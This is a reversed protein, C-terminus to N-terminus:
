RTAAIARATEISRTSWGSRENWGWALAHASGWGRLRERDLGLEQLVDLWLRIAAMGGRWAANRLLGVGNLEPEGVLPKPDIVLWPERTARLVNDGHLDQNVLSRASQDANRFVDVAYALLSPEFPEGDETYRASVEAAWREAEDVLLRFPHTPGPLLALLGLLDAVVSAEDAGSDRLTTGPRCREILLARREDDRAVLRVAGHGAWAALADAEHEAEYHTPANLKLVVDGALVVLSHPTDIPAELDLSWQAGCEAALRPLEALWQPECSWEVALAAPLRLAPM